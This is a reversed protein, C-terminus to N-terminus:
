GAGTSLVSATNNPGYVTTAVTVHIVSIDPLFDVPWYFEVQPWFYIPYM